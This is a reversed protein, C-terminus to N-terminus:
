YGVAFWNCIVNIGNQNYINFTHATQVLLFPTSLAAAAHTMSLQVNLITNTFIAGTAPHAAQVPFTIKNHLGQNALAYEGHDVLFAANITAFNALIPAQTPQLDQGPQPVQNLAM